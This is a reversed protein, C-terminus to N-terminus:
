LDPLPKGEAYLAQIDADSLARDFLTFEDMAGSFHRILFPPKNPIEGPNWNGLEAAGVRYPPPHTLAHRSVAKGNVYHVVRRREGDVVAALHLWQSFQNFGVVAPSAFIQVDM